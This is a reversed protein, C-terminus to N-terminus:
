VGRGRSHAPVEEASTLERREEREDGANELEALMDRMSEVRVGPHVAVELQSVLRRIVDKLEYKTFAAVIKKSMEVILDQPVRDTLRGPMLDNLEGLLKEVRDAVDVCPASTRGSSIHKTSEMIEKESAAVLGELRDNAGQLAKM